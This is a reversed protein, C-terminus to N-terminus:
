EKIIRKTTIGKETKIQLIYMGSNVASVDITTNKLQINKVSKGLINFLEINEIKVNEVKLYLVDKVPNPYISLDINEVTNISLAVDDNLITATAGDTINVALVTSALNNMFISLQEDSELDTDSIPTVTFTQTEGANGTFNLTESTISTYDNDVTTATGDTTNVDISFGGQVANDLTATVTIAGDDENGSVDAITVAAADDNLITGTAGDTINVSLTTSALNSQSFAVTENSELKTDGTPVFTFTQTEGATGAFTLTESTISTYDSDGTTATGDSTSVDVTFGGQVANDLTATVTISGDNENGSVDAITVAAADDNLITGTAGDTINVALATSALNSQSFTVTENLELKTDGTPVFTFTQTEGANGAFTLTESTISTYDSDGTTATGDSTSVDVTFGGQVANDLTATVTISGGNENGSVDAITVSAADDNLITGTAGDTINVALATSALNSQSFTVTENSELKTDGTPVFTFTQTEGANGAFTLTESTISTYDSDGTTATGDATSVDVTFGGQVANDLTATVTISGGNENGSVDAITVSASDDNLITGTAGDTINVALVTSALNNMFISLQEDSELKTDSTPTITFTETEGVTGAFTLTESNISTYDSDGTTATGDATSVDVTFGGQVANDLTATVTISGGNENGSVDAITVTASDDNLITYTAIDTIDIDNSDVSLFGLNTMSITFTENGEVKTDGIGGLSLTQTEGVTGAFTLTSGATSSYDSDSTTATGDTTFVDLAFGGQVPNSLTATITQSGTNENASVDAITVVTTDDNNLTLTAVDTVDIDGSAVTVPSLGSMSISVTEDAEVKTDGGLTVNFTETEGSTGAFTLTQLTVSTYDSDATTATGDATSVDIDFGGDVANNLTATITATGNNENVSVDAITVTASDDNNLTLTAVDTVDIDGSVVTVPSLGSMSISVTEDAEVKTDGGLTVSFTEMEGATGAFTLTQSTVSTYDSDSTTATGDATSVDIDFGGDVANDLTATITATGNNENVSVDAITVTASDDNTITGIGMTDAITATGTPNSLTLIITEDIEVTSDSNITVDVTKSTEGPNFTLTTTGVATYDSGATALGNSTAVDVTVTGSAAQDLSVTYQLTDGGELVSPDNVSIQSNTAVATDFIFADIALYDFTNTTSIDLEDINTLSFDSTGETSFDIFTFGNQTSPGGPVSNFGNTKTITFQDVNDKKGIITLTGTGNTFGDNQAIYVWFSKITFDEGTNTEISIQTGDMTPNNTFQSNDIFINDGSAGNWGLGALSRIIYGDTRSSSFDFTVGGESFSSTGLSETEFVETTQAYFNLIFFILFVSCTIKKM